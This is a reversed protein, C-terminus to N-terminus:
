RTRAASKKQSGRTSAELQRTREERAERIIDASDGKVKGALKRRMENTWTAFDQLEEDTPRMAAQRIALRAEAELSRDHQRAHRRLRRVEDDTLGRILIQSM